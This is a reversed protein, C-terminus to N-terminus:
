LVSFGVLQESGVKWEDSWSTPHDEHCRLLATERAVRRVRMENRPTIENRKAFPVTKDDVPPPGERQRTPSAPKEDVVFEVNYGRDRVRGLRAVEAVFCEVRPALTGAIFFISRMTPAAVARATANAAAELLGM